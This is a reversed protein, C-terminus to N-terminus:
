SLQAPADAAAAPPAAAEALPAAAEPAATATAVAARAPSSAVSSAARSRSPKAEEEEDDGWGLPEDEEKELLKLRSAALARAEAASAHAASPRREGAVGSPSAGDEGGRTATGSSVKGGAAGEESGEEGALRKSAATVAASTDTKLVTAFEAIDRTAVAAASKMAGAVSDWWSMKCHRLQRLASPSPRSLRAFTVVRQAGADSRFTGLAANIPAFQYRLL